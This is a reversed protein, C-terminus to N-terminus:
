AGAGPAVAKKVCIASYPKTLAGSCRTEILYKQQNYDIDFDDFMNVEGGKDAGFTYDGMNVIIALYETNEMPEVTVINAVRLKTALKTADEYLPHGQSDELLLMETLVDETTFMTPTGSGKYEKHARIINKILEKYDVPKSGDVSVKVTYLDDDTAIPRINDTPIHDDSSALRGDGILAARAVEEDLMIRMEGKLWSIVDFDTIDLVDDRDMKQKKYITTPTTSRKLLSIVEEVKKHSKTYGKARAEDATINAFVSKIRSFPSHKAGTMVTAVWATERKIFDPSDTTAKADPFLMDINNIGYTDAHALLSEKISGYKKGDEIIAKMDDHSLVTSTDETDNDEFVNHKMYGEGRDSHQASEDESDGGNTAEEIAQQIVFMVVKKQKDSLTNFVDEVTEDNGSNASPTADSKTGKKEMKQIGEKEASHELETDEKNEDELEEKSDSHKVEIDNSDIAQFYNIEAEDPLEEWGDSHELLVNEITAGNNAGALVLSVEKISGHMVNKGSDQKLHNAFISMYKIDGHKVLKKCREGNDTDNFKGYAWVGEPRNELLAHGLVNEPEDHEHMWVLPVVKGNDHAFADKRITRGDTCLINNKTAWGSFDYTENKGKM